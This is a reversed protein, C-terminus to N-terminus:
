KSIRLDNLKQAITSFAATLDTGSDAQFFDAPSTACDRLFNLSATDGGLYFGVTYLVVDNAPTKIANCLAVAQDHSQGNPSPCNIQTSSSGQLSDNSLVGQCYQMNFQGDTMLIVAKVLNARAYVSPQSAAPWLYGFNPSIMYWGWALGLHGATSNAAILSNALNHLTTKNTTLPQIPQGICDASTSL